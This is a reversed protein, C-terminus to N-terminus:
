YKNLCLDGIENPLALPEYLDNYLFEWASKHKIPEDFALDEAYQSNIINSILNKGINTFNHKNYVLIDSALHWELIVDDISQGKYVAFIWNKDTPKLPFLTIGNSKSYRRLKIALKLSMKVVYKTIYSAVKKVNPISKIHINSNKGTMGTVKEVIASFINNAQQYPFFCDVALHYHIFGNIHEEVVKIFKMKRCKPSLSLDRRVYILFRRWCERLQKHHLDINTNKDQRITVTWFSITPWTSLYNTLAKRLKSAKIPGCEKCHYAKCHSQVAQKTEINILYSNNSRQCM